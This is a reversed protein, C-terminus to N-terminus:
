PSQAVNGERLKRYFERDYYSDTTETAADAIQKRRAASDLLAARTLMGVAVLGAMATLAIAILKQLDVESVNTGSALGGLTTASQQRGNLMGAVRPRDAREVKRAPESVQTDAEWLPSKASTSTELGAAPTREERVRPEVSNSTPAGSQLTIHPTPAFKESSSESPTNTKGPWSESITDHSAASSVPPANLAPVSEAAHSNSAKNLSAPAADRISSTTAPDAAGNDTPLAPVTTTERVRPISPISSQPIPTRRIASTEDPEANQIPKARQTGSESSMPVPGALANGSSSSVSPTHQEQVSETSSGTPMSLQLYPTPALKQSSSASPTSPQGSSTDSVTDHSEGNSMPAARLAPASEEGHSNSAKSPSASAADRSSSMATPDAADKDTPAPPAPAVKKVQSVSPISSQPVRTRTSSTNEPGANPIPKATQSGPELSLPAPAALANGPPSTVNSTTPPAQVSSTPLPTAVNTKESPAAKQPAKGSDRLYWCKRHTGRELRYRWQSGQPASSNPAALCDDPHAAKDLEKADAQSVFLTIVFALLATAIRIAGTM